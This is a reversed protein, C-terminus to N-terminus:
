RLPISVETDLRSPAAAGETGNVLLFPSNGHRVLTKM